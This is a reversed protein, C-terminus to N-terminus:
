RAEALAESLWDPGRVGIKQLKALETLATLFYGTLPAFLDDRRDVRM